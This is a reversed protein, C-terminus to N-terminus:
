FILWGGNLTVALDPAVQSAVGIGAGSALMPVNMGRVMGALALAGGTMGIVLGMAGDLNSYIQWAVQGFGTDASTPTTALAAGPLLLSAVVAIGALALALIRAQEAKCLINNQSQYSHRYM